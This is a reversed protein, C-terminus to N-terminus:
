GGHHPGHCPDEDRAREREGRELAQLGLVLDVHPVVVGRRWAVRQELAGRLGVGQQRDDGLADVGLEEVGGRRDLGHGVQGHPGVVDVELLGRPAPDRDAVRRAHQGVGGGVDGERQQEADRTADVLALALDAGALPLRPVRRV